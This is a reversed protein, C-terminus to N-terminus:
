HKKKKPSQKPTGQIFELDRELNLKYIKREILLATKQETRAKGALYTLKAVIKDMEEPDPAFSNELQKLKKSAKSVEDSWWSVNANFFDIERILEKEKEELTMM